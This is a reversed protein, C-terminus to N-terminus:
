NTVVKKINIRRRSKWGLKNNTIKIIKGVEKSIEMNIIEIIYGNLKIKVHIFPKINTKRLQIVKKSIWL